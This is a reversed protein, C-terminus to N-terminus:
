AHLETAYEDECFRKLGLLRQKVMRRFYFAALAESIMPALWPKMKLSYRFKAITATDSHAQFVWSGAFKKLFFPGKVMVVAATNPPAVQVFQVEMRLGSKAVVLVKAGPAIVPEGLWDIREPFPDWQYRVAYDQSVRYVDAIPADILLRHEVIM